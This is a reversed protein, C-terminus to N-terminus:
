EFDINKGRRIQEKKAFCATSLVNERISARLEPERKGRRKRPGSRGKKKSGLTGALKRKKEELFAEQQEGKLGFIGSQGADERKDETGTRRDRAKQL